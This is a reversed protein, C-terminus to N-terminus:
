TGRRGQRESSISSSVQAAASAEPPPDVRLGWERLQALAREFGEEPHTLELSEYAPNINSPLTV